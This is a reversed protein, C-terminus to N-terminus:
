SGNKEGQEFIKEDRIAWKGKGLPVFLNYKGNFYNSDSSYRQLIARITAEMNKNHAKEPYKQNVIKKAEKYLDSLKAEKNLVVLADYVINAWNSNDQLEGYKQIESQVLIDSETFTLEESPIEHNLQIAESITEIVKLNKGNKQQFERQLFNYNDKFTADQSVIVLDEKCYELISEWIIEDGCTYKNSTPPNGIMKRKIARDIIDTTREYNIESINFYTEYISDAEPTELLENMEKIILNTQQNATKISNAYNNYNRLTAIINNPHANYNQKRLDAIFERIMRDRNRLFEDKSQKTLIFYKKYKKIEKLVNEANERNNIRYFNLFINADIFIKYM